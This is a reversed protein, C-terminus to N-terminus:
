YKTHGVVQQRYWNLTITLLNKRNHNPLMRKSEQERLRGCALATGALLITSPRESLMHTTRHHTLCHAWIFVAMEHWSSHSTTPLDQLQSGRKHRQINFMYSIVSAASTLLMLESVPSPRLLHISPRVISPRLIHRLCWQDLADIWQSSISTVSWMDASCVLVPTYVHQVTPDQGALQYLLGYMVISLTWGCAPWKLGGSPHGSPDTEGGAADSYWGVSVFYNVVEVDHGCVSVKSPHSVDRDFAQVKTRTWDVDLGHWSSEEHFIELALVM